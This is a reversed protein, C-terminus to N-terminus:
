LGARGGRGGAGAGPSRPVMDSSCTEGRRNKRTRVAGRRGVARLRGLVHDQQPRRGAEAAIEKRRPNMGAPGIDPTCAVGERSTGQRRDPQARARTLLDGGRQQSIESATGTRASGPNKDKTSTRDHTQDDDRHHPRGREQDEVYPPAHAAPQGGVLARRQEGAVACRPHHREADRHRHRHHGPHPGARARDPSTASAATNTREWCHGCTFRM